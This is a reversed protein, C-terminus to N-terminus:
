NTSYRYGGLSGAILLNELWNEHYGSLDSFPSHRCTRKTFPHFNWILAMSRVFIHTNESWSDHLYKMRYLVRDQWDMLRDLM